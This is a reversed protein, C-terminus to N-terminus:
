VIWDNSWPQGSRFVVAQGNSALLKGIALRGKLKFEGGKVARVISEGVSKWCVGLRSGRCTERWLIELDRMRILNM